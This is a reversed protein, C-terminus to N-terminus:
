PAHRHALREGIQSRRRHVERADLKRGVPHRGRPLGALVRPEEVGHLRDPDLQAGRQADADRHALIGQRHLGGPFVGPADLFDDRREREDDGSERGAGVRAAHERRSQAEIGARSFQDQDIESQISAPEAARRQRLNVAM